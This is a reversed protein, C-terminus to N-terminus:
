KRKYQSFDEGSAAANASASTGSGNRKYQSFDESSAPKNQSEAVAYGNQSAFQKLFEDYSPPEQLNEIGVNKKKYYDALVQAYAANARKLLNDRVSETIKGGGRTSFQYKAKATAEAVKIREEMQQQSLQSRLGYVQKQKELDLNAKQEYADLAQAQKRQEDELALQRRYNEDALKFQYEGELTGINRLDDSAKVARNFADLYQRNDVPQVGATSGGVAWGLPQVMTTLVNGLANFRAMKTADTRQQEVAQKRSNLWDQFRQDRVAAAQESASHTQEKPGFVSDIISQQKERPLIRQMTELSIAPM